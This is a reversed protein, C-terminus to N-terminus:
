EGKKKRTRTKKVPEETAPKKLQEIEKELASVKNAYKGVDELLDDYDESLAKYESLLRLSIIWGIIGIITIAIIAANVAINVM